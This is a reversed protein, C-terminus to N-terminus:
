AQTAQEQIKADLAALMREGAKIWPREDNPIGCQECLEDFELLPLELPSRRGRFYIAVHSQSQIDIWQIQDVNIVNSETRILKM